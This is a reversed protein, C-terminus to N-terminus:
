GTGSTSGCSRLGSTRWAVPAGPSGPLLRWEMFYATPPKSSDDYSTSWESSM